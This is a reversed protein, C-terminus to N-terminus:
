KKRIDIALRLAPRVGATRNDIRTYAPSYTNYEKDMLIERRVVACVEKPGYRFPSRLLEVNDVNDYGRAIAYDTVNNPPLLFTREYRSPLFVKDSTDDCLYPNKKAESLLADFELEATTVTGFVSNNIRAMPIIGEESATFACSLFEGNLWTRMDSEYWKNSLSDFERADLVDRSILFMSNELNKDIGIKELSWEEVVQWYIPEVKFYYEEGKTYGTDTRAPNATIKVYREGDSGLYYGDGAIDGWITVDDAKKTQPYEGLRVYRPHWSREDDSVTMSKQTILSYFAYNEIERNDSYLIKKERQCSLLSPLLMAVILFLSIFKVRNKM